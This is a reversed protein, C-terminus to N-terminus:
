IRKNKLGWKKILYKNRFTVKTLCFENYLFV